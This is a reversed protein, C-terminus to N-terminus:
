HIYWHRVIATSGQPGSSQEINDRFIVFSKFIKFHAVSFNYAICPDLTLGGSHTIVAPPTSQWRGPAPSLFRTELKHGFHGSSYFFCERIMHYECIAIISEM